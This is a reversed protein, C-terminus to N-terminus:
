EDERLEKTLDDFEGIIRVEAETELGERAAVEMASQVEDIATDALYLSDAQAIFTCSYRRMYLGMQIDERGLVGSSRERLGM